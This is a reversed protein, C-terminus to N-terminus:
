GLLRRRLRDIDSPRTRCCGGVLRAGREVWGPAADALAPEGAAPTWRRSEADWGEGSNPYAVLPKGVREGLRGVLEDVFRPATCNVGVALVSPSAAAAIAAAAFDSGEGLHEGDRCCFSVWASAGAEELLGVLVRAEAASPITECALLDAGAEALIELRDRHFDELEREDLDYDGTYESGDALYAGYPGVSAAVLPRVRGPRNAREDWFADRAERALDVSARLAREAELGTLGQAMLGPLTAQYTSSVVCDAGAVLYDHHLRRIAAPDDLILRASWLGADLELGRAELETALGGDLILVSQRELAAALGLETDPNDDGTM